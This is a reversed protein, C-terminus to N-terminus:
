NDGRRGADIQGGFKELYSELREDESKSLVIAADIVGRFYGRQYGLSTAVKWVVVFAVLIVLSLLAATM